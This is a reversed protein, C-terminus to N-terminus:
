ARKRRLYAKGRESIKYVGDSGREILSLLELKNIRELDELETLEVDKHNVMGHITIPGNPIEMKRGTGGNQFFGLIEKDRGDLDVDSFDDKELIYNSSNNFFQKLDGAVSVNKLSQSIEQKKSSDPVNKNCLRKYLWEVAKKFWGNM